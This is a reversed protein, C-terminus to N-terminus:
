LAALEEDTYTCMKTYYDTISLQLKKMITLAIRTNVSQAHSQSSYPDALTRWAQALSSCRSVHMLTERTLTLLLYGLIVQDRVVWASYAPNRQKIPKGDIIVFLEKDPLLDIGTLLDELQAARIAPLVQASWLPYNLKTLKESVPVALISPIATSSSYPSVATSTM